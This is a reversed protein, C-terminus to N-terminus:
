QQTVPDALRMCQLTMSHDARFGFQSANLLNREEIPKQITRLIMKEFLKETTCLQRIPRLNQPFKPDKGPKPLIIIKAENWPAPFRGLWLCHNFLHTLHVLPRRPLHRTWKDQNYLRAVSRMSFMTEWLEEIKAHQSELLEKGAAHQNTAASVHKPQRQRAIGTEEPKWIVNHIYLEKYYHKSNALQM